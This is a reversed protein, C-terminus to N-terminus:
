LGERQRDVLGALAPAAAAGVAPIAAKEHATARLGM